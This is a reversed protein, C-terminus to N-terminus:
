FLHESILHAGVSPTNVIVREIGPIMRIVREVEHENKGECILHVNPGADITFYVSLGMTRWGRVADMIRKTTDNWYMLPPVQTQMVRHMDLCDEELLAGFSVFDKTNFAAKMAHMRQPVASLRMPLNPSTAVTEMGESTPTKKMGSDVIVLLDRLDWYTSPYLSHAYSTDSDTGKEWVVFGDPISRCASGSGLRAIITEEKQSLTTGSAAFGAVTLAAFGSASAASGAGKPFTNKTVVNAYQSVGARARIRNLGRIVRSVEADSFVGDELKVTDRTLIDSFEVTTITYAGSLNMSFSDNLPLRLEEDVKGWYKIFAINSPAWATAKM